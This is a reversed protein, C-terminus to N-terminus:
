IPQTQGNQYEVLKSDAYEAAEEPTYDLDRQERYHKAWGGVMASTLPTAPTIFRSYALMRAAEYINEGYSNKVITDLWVKPWSSPKTLDKPTVDIVERDAYDFSPAPSVVTVGYDLDEVDQTFYDSANVTLLIAQVFARKQAMKQVTNVLDATDPNPIQGVEQDLIAPDHYDFNAGCGGAKSYCYWGPTEDPRNKPPYKSRKIAGKRCNPCIREANRYRYKKERSNCSGEGSGVKVGNKYLNCTYHFYFFSEGGHTEGTWDLEKELTVFDHQLGFFSKLKEAGPKLLTDKDTGPVKGYDINEVLVGAIFEKMMQYRALAMEISVAPALWGQEDPKVIIESKM